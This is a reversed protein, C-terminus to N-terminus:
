GPGRRRRLRRHARPIPAQAPNATAGALSLIPAVDPEDALRRALASAESTGGLILLRLRKLPRSWSCAFAPKAEDADALVPDVAKSRGRPLEDRLRVKDDAALAMKREGSRQLGLRHTQGDGISFASSAMSARRPRETQTSALPSGNKKPTPAMSIRRKAAPRSSRRERRGGGKREGRRPEAPALLIARQERQVAPRELRDNRMQLWARANKRQGPVVRGRGLQRRQKVARPMPRDFSVIQSAIPPGRSRMRVVSACPKASSLTAAKFM